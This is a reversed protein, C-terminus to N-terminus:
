FTYNFCFTAHGIIYLCHLGPFLLLWNQSQIWYSNVLSKHAKCIHKEVWIGIKKKCHVDM